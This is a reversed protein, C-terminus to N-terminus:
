LNEGIMGHKYSYRAFTGLRVAEKIFRAKWAAKWCGTRDDQNATGVLIKWKAKADGRFFLANRRLIERDCQGLKM